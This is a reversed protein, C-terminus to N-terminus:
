SDTAVTGDTVSGDAGDTAPPADTSGDAGDTATSGDGTGDNVPPTDVPPVVPAPNATASLAATAAALDALTQDSIVQGPQIADVQAQLDAVKAALATDDANIEAIEAEVTDDVESMQNIRQTLQFIQQYLYDVRDPGVIFQRFAAATALVKNLDDSEYNSLCYSIALELSKVASGEAVITSNNVVVNTEDINADGEDHHM